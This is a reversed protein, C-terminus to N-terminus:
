RLHLGCYVEFTEPIYSKMMEYQKLISGPNESLRPEDNVRKQSQKPEKEVIFNM